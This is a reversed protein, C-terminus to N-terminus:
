FVDLLIYFKQFIVLGLAGSNIKYHERCIGSILHGIWENAHLCGIVFSSDGSGCHSNDERQALYKLKM